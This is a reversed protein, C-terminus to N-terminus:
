GDITDDPGAEVPPRGSDPEALFESLERMLSARAEPSEPVEIVTTSTEGQRLCLFTRVGSSELVPYPLPSLDLPQAVRVTKLGAKPTVDRTVVLTGKRDDIELWAVGRRRLGLIAVGVAVMVVFGVAIDVKLNVLPRPYSTRQADHLFANFEHVTEARSDFVYASSGRELPVRGTRTVLVLKSLTSTAGPETADAFTGDDLDLAVLEALDFTAHATHCRGGGGGGAERVCSIYDDRKSHVLLALGLLTLTVILLM